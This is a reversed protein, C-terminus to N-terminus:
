ILSLGKKHLRLYACAHVRAKEIEGLIHGSNSAPNDGKFVLRGQPTERELRKIILGLESHNIIYVRGPKLRSGPWIANTLTLVYDGHLLTPAMSQGAVKIIKIM